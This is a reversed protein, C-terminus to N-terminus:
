CTIQIRDFVLASNSCSENSFEAFSLLTSHNIQLERVFFSLGTGYAADTKSKSFGSIHCLRILRVLSPFPSRLAQPGTSVPYPMATDNLKNFAPRRDHLAAQKAAEVPDMGAFPPCHELLQFAIMSFSYVDVKFNYPEHRFVEPAM